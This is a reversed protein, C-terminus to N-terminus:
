SDPEIEEVSQILAGVSEMNDIFDIINESWGQLQYVDHAAEPMVLDGYSNLDVIYLSVDPNVQKYQNWEQRFQKGGLQRSNWMQGDTFIIVQNYSDLGEMRLGRPVLYGNTSGGADVGTIAKANTVLPNRRDENV